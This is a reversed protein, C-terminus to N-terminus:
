IGKEEQIEKLLEEFPYSPENKREEITKLDELDELEEYLNEILELLYNYREISIVAFKKGVSYTIFQVEQTTEM